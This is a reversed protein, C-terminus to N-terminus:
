RTHSCLMPMAQSEGVSLLIAQQNGDINPIQDDLVDQAVAGSCSKFQFKRASPDGLRSDQNILYPYAQDYRSCAYDISMM